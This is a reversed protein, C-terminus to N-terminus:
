TKVMRFGEVTMRDKHQPLGAAKCLDAYQAVLANIRRQCAKRGEMDGAERFANAADKERRVQTEIQRMKQTAWYLTKHKGNYTFGDHNKKEMEQLQEETFKRKSIKTSFGYAFHRCNWQGIPRTFGTYSRGDVDKFDMGSQMKEFEERLFVRGQVPEHDPASNLHASIEVADFGLEQSVIDSGHQSIQRTADLVNQRASSDLRRRYGSPYYVKMGNYGLNHIIGRVAESYSTLGSSVALVADSVAERYQQSIATTNSLNELGEVAQAAVSQAYQKVQAEIERKREPSEELAEKFRPDTTVDEATENCLKVVDQLTQGTAQKLENAVELFTTGNDMITLLTHVSSANLEGLAEIQDAVKHIFFRMVRSFRARLRQMFEELRNENM